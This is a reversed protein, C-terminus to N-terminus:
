TRDRSIISPPTAGDLTILQTSDREEEDESDGYSLGSSKKAAAGSRPKLNPIKGIDDEEDSEGLTDPAQNFDKAYQGKKAGSAAAAAQGGAGQARKSVAAIGGSVGRKVKEIVEKPDPIPLLIVLAEILPWGYYGAVAVIMFYVLTRWTFFGGVVSCSYTDPNLDVGGWCRNGPIKRYGQSVSYYGYTDCQAAQDEKIYGGM